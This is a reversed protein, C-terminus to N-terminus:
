QKTPRELRYFRSDNTTTMDYQVMGNAFTFPGPIENWDNTMLSGTDFLRWGTADSLEPWSLEMGTLDLWPADAPIGGEEEPFFVSVRRIAATEGSRVAIRFDSPGNQRNAFYGDAVNWHATKWGGTGPPYIYDPHGTYSGSLGDYQLQFRIGPHIDYYEVEITAAQGAANAYVVTDDIDFYFYIDTLPNPGNTRCNQGGLSAGLTDGDAPQRHTLGAVVDNTGLYCTADEGGYAAPTIASELPLTSSLTRQGNLMERAAGSLQLYWSPDRGENDIYHGWDPHTDPHIDSMPMIHTGEDYEDFMGLFIQDAGCAVANYIRTWYFNGGDRATYQYPFVTQQLNNWSFGPWAHPLIKMGWSDLTAKQRNLDGLDREMWGLLQDYKQYHAHWTTNTEWKWSNVGAILYLGEGAFWDVISDAEALTFDRGNVSFGWIFLVPKGDEHAYRPDDLIGAENVLWNWDNTMVELPDPDNDLSSVDYEMAWIRGEKSAAEMVNNLVFQRSGYYGSNNRNVFHQLYAGDIGHKRMWRFHRQVTAPDRSSFLYAPRGDQHLLDGARYLDDTDYENLWPWADITMWSEDPVADRGRGWHRWGYDEPDNPTGFWGQYGTMVKGSLTRNDVFDHVEGAYPTLWPESVAFLFKEDDYPQTSIQVGAIRLPTGDSGQLKFRFDNGGNQRGSFLPYKFMQYSYVFGGGDVRSSRAHIESDRYKDATTSGLTSDYEAFLRGYGTDHYEIRVYVPQGPTFSFSGPVDFFLQVSSNNPVWVTRGDSSETTYSGSSIGSDPVLDAIQPLPTGDTIDFTLGALAYGDNLSGLDVNGFELLQGSQLLIDEAMVNWTGTDSGLNNVLSGDPTILLMDVTTNARHNWSVTNLMLLGEPLSTQVTIWETGPRDIRWANQGGVGLGGGDNDTLKLGSGGVDNLVLSFSSNFLGSYSITGVPGDWADIADIIMQEGRTTSADLTVNGSGDVSFALTLTGLENTTSQPLTTNFFVVSVEASVLSVALAFSGICLACFKLM